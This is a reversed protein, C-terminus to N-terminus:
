PYSILREKRLFVRAGFIEKKVKGSSQILEIIEIYKRITRADIKTAYSIQYITLKKDSLCDLIRNFIEIAVTM